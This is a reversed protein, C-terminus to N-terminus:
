TSRAHTTHGGVSRARLAGYTLKDVILMAAADLASGVLYSRALMGHLEDLSRM